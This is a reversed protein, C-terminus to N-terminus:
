SAAQSVVESRKRLLPFTDNTLWGPLLNVYFPSGLVGSAGGPLSSEARIRGPAMEGVFRRVPGGGFMFANSGSARANHSSADVANFGGDTPIGALDAVPPPFAGGAPPVSFPGNLTHDFVIRHLRGWRYDEQDTSHNF